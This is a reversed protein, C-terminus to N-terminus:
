RGSPMLDLAPSHADIHLGQAHAAELLMRMDADGVVLRERSILLCPTSLRRARHEVVCGQERREVGIVAVIGPDRKSTPAFRPSRTLRVDGATRCLLASISSDVDGPRLEGAGVHQDDAAAAGAAGRRERRCAAPAFTMRAVLSRSPSLLVTM